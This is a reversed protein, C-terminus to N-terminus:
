VASPCVAHRVVHRDAQRAVIRGVHRLRVVDKRCTADVCTELADVSTEMQGLRDTEGLRHCMRIVGHAHAEAKAAGDLSSPEISM